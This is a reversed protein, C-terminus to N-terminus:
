MISLCDTPSPSCAPALPTLNAGRRWPAATPAARRAAGPAAPTTDTILLALSLSLSSARPAQTQTKQAVFSHRDLSPIPTTIIPHTTRIPHHTNTTITITIYKYRYM